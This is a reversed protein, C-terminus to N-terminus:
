KEDALDKWFQVTGVVEPTVTVKNGTRRKLVDIHGKENSSTVVFPYGAKMAIELRHSYSTSRRDEFMVNDPGGLCEAILDYVHELGEDVHTKSPQVVVCLYPAFMEPWIIGEKTHSVEVIAAMLRSIGIGYCGMECIDTESPDRKM